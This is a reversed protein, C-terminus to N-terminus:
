KGTQETEGLITNFAIWATGGNEGLFFPSFSAIGQLILANVEL